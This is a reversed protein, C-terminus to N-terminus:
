YQLQSTPGPRLGQSAVSSTGDTYFADKDVVDNEVVDKYVADKNVVINQVIDVLLLV